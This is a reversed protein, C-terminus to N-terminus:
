ISRRDSTRALEDFAARLRLDSHPTGFCFRAWTSDLTSFESGSRVKIEARDKLWKALGGPYVANRRARVLAFNATPAYIEELARSATLNAHINERAVALATQTMDLYSTVDGSNLLRAVLLASYSVDFCFFSDILMGYADPHCFITGLRVGPLCLLKSLSSVVIVNPYRAVLPICTHDRWDIRFLLYTEDIIWTVESHREVSAQLRVLSPMQGTPNNPNGLICVCGRDLMDDLRGLGGENIDVTAQAVVAPVGALTASMDYEWFTPAVHAVAKANVLRPLHLIAASAGHTPICPVDAEYFTRLHDALEDRGDFDLYRRIWDADGQLADTVVAPPGYLNMNASLDLIM